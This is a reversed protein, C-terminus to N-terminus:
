YVGDLSCDAREQSAIEETQRAAVQCVGLVVQCCPLWGLPKNGWHTSFFRSPIVFIPLSGLNGYSEQMIIIHLIETIGSDTDRSPPFGTDDHM